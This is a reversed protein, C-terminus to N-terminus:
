EINTMDATVGDTWVGAEVDFLIKTVDYVLETEDFTLTYLYSKGQVWTNATGESVSFGPLAVNSEAWSTINTAAIPSSNTGEGAILIGNQAIAYEITVYPCTNTAAALDEVTAEAPTYTQPLLLMASSASVASTTADAADM